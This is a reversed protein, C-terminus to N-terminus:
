TLQCECIDCIDMIKSKIINFNDESLCNDTTNINYCSFVEVYDILLKLKIIEKTACKNGLSLLKSVKTAYTSICCFANTLITNYTSQTM